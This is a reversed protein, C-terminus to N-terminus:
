ETGSIELCTVYDVGMRQPARGKRLDPLKVDREVLKLLDHHGSERGARVDFEM